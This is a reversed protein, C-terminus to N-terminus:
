NSSRFHAARHGWIVAGCRPAGHPGDGSLETVLVWAAWQLLARLRGSPKASDLGYSDRKSVQQPEEGSNRRCSSM